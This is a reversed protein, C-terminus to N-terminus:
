SFPKVPYTFGPVRIVPLWWLIKFFTWCGTYCEDSGTQLDMWNIIDYFWLCIVLIFSIFLPVIKNCYLLLILLRVLHLNPYSPLLDRCTFFSWSSCKSNWLPKFQFSNLLSVKKHKKFSFSLSIEIIWVLKCLYAVSLLNISKALQCAM